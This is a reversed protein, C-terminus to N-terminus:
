KFVTHGNSDLFKLVRNGNSTYCWRDIKTDGLHERRHCLRCLCVSNEETYKGGECGPLIRHVELMREDDLDCLQCHGERKKYAIKNM